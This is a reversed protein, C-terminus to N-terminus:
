GADGGGNRDWEYDRERRYGRDEADRTGRARRSDGYREARQGDRSPAWRGPEAPDPPYSGPFDPNSM